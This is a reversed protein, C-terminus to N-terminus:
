SPVPARPALLAALAQVSYREQVVARGARAVTDAGDALVGVLADAFAAAGEARLYHEGATLRLGQAAVPTAVVPVAHALAEVFKLPSGGGALLPVVACAARAYQADLDEVFGLAQVRADPPGGLAPDRGVLTLRADPRATWVRPMVEDVLFRAAQANPAWRFDAVLLITGDRAPTAVPVVAEVDVVNPVYRVTAGPALARAGAVDADSVMWVEQAATFIRRELREMLARSGYGQDGLEHQFSSELNHGNYIVPRGARRLPALSEWMTVGDAVIRGDPTALERVRAALEANVGRALADPVRAARATAYALARRLGRSPHVPHLRIEPHALVEPAPEDAGFVSYVLDMPAHAGLARAVAYTRLARGVGLTPTHATVLVDTM